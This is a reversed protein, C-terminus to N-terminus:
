RDDNSDEQFRRKKLQKIVSTVEERLPDEILIVADLVGDIAM